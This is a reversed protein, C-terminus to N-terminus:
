IEAFCKYMLKDTTVCYETYWTPCKGTVASVVSSISATANLEDPSADKQGYFEARVLWKGDLGNLPSFVVGINVVNISALGACLNKSLQQIRLLASTIRALLGSEWDNPTKTLSDEADGALGRMLDVRDGDGYGRFHRPEM